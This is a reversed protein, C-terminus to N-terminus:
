TGIFDRSCNEFLKNFGLNLGGGWLKGELILTVENLYCTLIEYLNFM